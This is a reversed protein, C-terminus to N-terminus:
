RRVMDLGPAGPAGTRRHTVPGDPGVLSDAEIRFRTESGDGAIRTWGTRTGDAGYAMVDRWPAPTFLAPDAYAGAPPTYSIEKLRPGKPGEEWVRTENPPFAVSLFSPASSRAGNEAIVAIDIRHTTLGTELGTGPAPYPDHWAIRIRAEHGDQSPTITVKDPDGRLLVWRFSLPRGNPDRTAAASLVMERTHAYSRWIRAIATPTTFLAESAGEDLYDLGPRAGLDQTVELRVVPPIEDPTLANALSVMRGPNLRAGEFVTPHAAHTLYGQATPLPGYTRRLIMQLTPVILGEAILREKTAPRLAALTMALAEVLAMDSGSSGQSILMSATNAPFRDGTDPDHDRHEPYVILRGAQADAAFVEFRGGTMARRPLSRPLPGGTIALSANGIAPRNFRLPGPLASAHRNAAPAYTVHSIQPFASASLRSHGNDRNDYLDGWNGAAMGRAHISRLLQDAPGTRAPGLVPLDPREAQPEFTALLTGRRPDWLTNEATVPAAGGAILAPRVPAPPLQAALRDRLARFAPDERLTAFDQTELAPALGAQGTALAAELAALAATRDGAQAELGARSIHLRGLDPHSSALRGLQQRADDLNGQRRARHAQVLRAATEPLAFLTAEALGRFAPDDGQARAFPTLALCLAILACAPRIM